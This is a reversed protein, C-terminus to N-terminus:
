WDGTVLDVEIVWEPLIVGSWVYVNWTLAIPGDPADGSVLPGVNLVGFPYVTDSDEVCSIASVTSVTASTGFKQDPNRGDRNVIAVKEPPSSSFAACVLRHILRPSIWAVPRESARPM